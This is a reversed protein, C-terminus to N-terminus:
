ALVARERRASARGQNNQKGKKIQSFLLERSMCHQQGDGSKRVVVSLGRESPWLVLLARIGTRADLIFAYVGATLQAGSHLHQETSDISLRGYTASPAQYLIGDELVHVVPSQALTLASCTLSCNLSLSLLDNLKIKFGVLAMFDDCLVLKPAYRRTSIPALSTTASPSGALASTTTRGLCSWGGGGRHM